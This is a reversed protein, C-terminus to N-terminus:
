EGDEATEVLAIWVAGNEDVKWLEAAMLEDVAVATREPGLMEEVLMRLGRHTVGGGYVLGMRGVTYVYMADPSLARFKHHQSWHVPREEV